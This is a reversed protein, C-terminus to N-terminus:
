LHSAFYMDPPRAASARLVARTAAEAITEVPHTATTLGAFQALATDDFGAVAVDSPVGIHRARLQALVGMATDDCVAFIADIDPWRRLVSATATRGDEAKFGGAVVRRQLGADRMVEGYGQVMRDVCPLWRPGSVMAIRRRGSEVLRCTIERAATHNDVDVSPILPSGVGISVIRGALRHDVARLVSDTTNVLVVGRVTPDRALVDLPDAGDLALAELGVGIREPACVKAATAVVRALYDDVVLRATPSVVGIVVRTGKGTSMSLAAPNPVYGLAAAAHSVQEVAEASVRRDGTLVRSATSKSVGAMRAVDYITTARGNLISM